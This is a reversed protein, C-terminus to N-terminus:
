SIICKKKKKKEDPVIEDETKYKECILQLVGSASSDRASVEVFPIGWSKALESGQDTTVQREDQLDRKNGVLIVSFPTGNKVRNIQDWFIKAEDFSSRSTISYVLVFLQRTRMYQDRM